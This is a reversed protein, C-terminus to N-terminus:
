SDSDKKSLPHIKNFINSLKETSVHTYRETSLLHTHGLLEQVVRLDTGQNLLHTAFSHRLKHPTMHKHTSLFSRFMQCIRQISRTTLQQNRNNLFIYDQLTDPFPREEKIYKIIRNAAKNGFLVCREKKGKGYIRIIKQQFDIDQLKINVLESCRIGTSYLTELIAKDRLPKKTPLEHDSLQDLLHNIEDISLFIPLKKELRPRAITLTRDIGLTKLYKNFSKFCSIKRAISSKDIKKHYLFVFFRELITNFDIEPMDASKIREWFEAFQKLDSEYARLTHRSVNKEVDLYTIFTHALNKYEKLNM